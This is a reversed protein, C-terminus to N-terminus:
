AARLKAVLRKLLAFCKILRNGKNEIDLELRDPLLIVACSTPWSVDRAFRQASRQLLFIGGAEAEAGRAVWFGDHNRGVFFAPIKESLVRYDPRQPWVIM